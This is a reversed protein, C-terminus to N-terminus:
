FTSATRVTNRKTQYEKSHNIVEVPPMRYAVYVGIATTMVEDDHQGEIAGYSGDPKQEYFAMEYTTEIDREVYLIERLAKNFFTVIMRKSASNTHFGYKLPVNNRLKDIQDENRVYINSYHEVIEDLITFFYDGGPNDKKLSNSEPAFLANNYWKSIQVAKWVVLDQDAHFKYSAVVEPIGGEHMWYRDFVKIYSWDAGDSAGGIDLTVLYRNAVHISTDPFAWIKLKGKSNANFEIHNLGDAGNIPPLDGLAIPNKCTKRANVVYAEKFVRQGSTQFAEVDNGPYESKMRWDDFDYGEKTSQYWYVGEITAGEHWQEWQYESWTSIFEAPNPVELAYRAIFFWPIFVPTFKSKGLVAQTWQRHFYNGQGKATSELAIFSLPVDPVTAQLAQALDEASRQKTSKWLGVESEHLMAFDFSRLSEPKQASGISIICGRQNLIRTKSSGEHPSFTLSQYYSKAMRTYMSRINKAQEEVDAVIASHWNQAHRLQIWSMYIQILTSGGWQRAKLLITRIPQGALRMAELKSLLTRQGLNLTFPISLKTDKDQIKVTSFAWFEFDHDFRLEILQRTVEHKIKEYLADNSPVNSEAILADVSGFYQLATYLPTRLLSVPAMFTIKNQGVFYSFPKRELLSGEGTVPNPNATLHQYRSKNEAVVQTPTM